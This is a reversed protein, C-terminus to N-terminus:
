APRKGFGTLAYATWLCTLPALPLVYRQWPLPALWFLGLGLCLSALLLITLAYRRQPGAFRLRLCALGIGLLNLAFMLSGGPLGRLVQHVPNALYAHESAQTQLSYNGAEAFAPPTFYLNALLAALRRGPSDLAVEPLLRKLDAIQKTQLQQRETIAARVAQLPQRWLFPNLLFTVLGFVVLTQVWASAIRPWGSLRGSQREPDPWAVALLGVPLLVLGTQKANFAIALGLGVLWPPRKATLCSWLLLLVGFTLAAEAMARRDHLLVLANLGMLLLALLGTLAGHLRTGIQYVLFLSCPLLLTLTLRGALLLRPDPLAGATQNQEWTKTWDWDSPLAPLGVLNRGLGLLYKTLPADVLRLHARGDGAQGPTWALSSPDRLLLEFDRSMYLQTSEDPHFPVNGAGSLAFATLLILLPWVAWSLFTIKHTSASPPSIQAGAQSTPQTM